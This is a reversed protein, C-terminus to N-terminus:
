PHKSQEYLSVTGIAASGIIMLWALVRLGSRDSRLFLSRLTFMSFPLLQNEASHM